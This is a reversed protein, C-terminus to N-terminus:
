RRLQVEYMITVGQARTPIVSKVSYTKGAVQVSDNQLPEFVGDTILKVDGKQILTGDINASEYKDPHAKVTTAISSGGEIRGTAPNASGGIIRNFVTDEGYKLLLRVASSSLTDSLAM